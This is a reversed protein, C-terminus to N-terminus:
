FRSQALKTKLWLVSIFLLFAINWVKFLKASYDANEYNMRLKQHIQM